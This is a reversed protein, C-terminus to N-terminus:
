SVLINSARLQSLDDVIYKAMKSLIYSNGISLYAFLRFQSYLIGIDRESYCWLASASLFCM